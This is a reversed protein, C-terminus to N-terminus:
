YRYRHHRFCGQEHGGCMKRADEAGDFAAQTSWAKLGSMLMHVYPLSSHNGLTQSKLMEQHNESAARGAFLIAYSKSVLALLRHHQHKYEIIATEGDQSSSLGRGQLRVTSYRTAIKLAQALQFVVNRIIVSRGNLMGGYLLKERLPSSTYAGSRTVTCHRMLLHTRPSRVHHFIAYGNDTSNYSIKM